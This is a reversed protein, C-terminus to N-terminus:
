IFKNGVNFLNKKSNLVDAVALIKGGALQIKQLRLIGSGTIVDIGDKDTKIITGPLENKSVSNTLVQTQWIKIIQNDIETYAIPKPNFARVLRDLEIANLNWNLKAEEKTIKEAYNAKSDDQSTLIAKGEEIEDLVELLLKAGIVACKEWLSATTDHNEIPLSIQKYIAGTDLGADMQMITVGTIQDGALIARQIPAAGRWRPLLSPHINICRYKPANLIEKPILFGCAVDVFIDANFALFQKQAEPNKLNIPQCVPLNLEQSLQKVPSATLKLGRGSPRDPQTYVACIKHSSEYIAKLAPLSFEPTGAFIVKM